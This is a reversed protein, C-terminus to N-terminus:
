ITKVLEKFFVLETFPVPNGGVLDTQLNFNVIKSSQTLPLTECVVTVQKQQDTSDQQAAEVDIACLSFNRIDQSRNNFTRQIRDRHLPSNYFVDRNGCVDNNNISMRYSRWSQVPAIGPALCYGMFLNQANPEVILQQTLNANSNGQIEETSYTTYDISSPGTQSPTQTLVIEARNIRIQDTAETSLNAKVLINTVDIPAATANNYVSTRTFIRVQKTGAPPNTANTGLNYEISEIVVNTSATVPGALDYSVNISQGVYFPMDLQYNDYLLSTVLPNGTLGLDDGAGLQGLGATTYDEMQGFFKNQGTPDFTTVDELGGMRNIHLRNPEIELHIRTDGYVDSNWLASGVGFLDSLNIRLDRSTRSATISQNATGDVATNGGMIQILSSTKNGPGRRGFSNGLMDIGDKQEAKDNEINWLVQRLTDIRRISEVMGRDASFMDANRVLSAADSLLRTATSNQDNMSIGNNFLATDASTAGATAAAGAGATGKDLIEVNLNIWSKGLNYTGTGSPIIFDLLKQQAPNNVFDAPTWTESFGQESEIKIVSEM